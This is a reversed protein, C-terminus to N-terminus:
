SDAEKFNLTLILGRFESSVEKLPEKLNIMMKISRDFMMSLCKYKGLSEISTSKPNYINKPLM